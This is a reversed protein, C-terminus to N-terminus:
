LKEPIFLYLFGEKANPNNVAVPNEPSVLELEYLAGALNSFYEPPSETRSVFLLYSGPDIGTSFGNIIDSGEVGFGAEDLMQRLQMTFDEQEKNPHATRTVLVVPGFPGDQTAEVFAAKQTETIRRPAQQAELEKIRSQAQEAAEISEQEREFANIREDRSVKLNAFIFVGTVLSGLAWSAVVFISPLHWAGTATQFLSIVNRMM